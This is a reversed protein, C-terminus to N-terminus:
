AFTQKGPVFYIILSHKSVVPSVTHWTQIPFLNRLTVKGDLVHAGSADCVRVVLLVSIM